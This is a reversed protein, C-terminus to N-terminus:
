PISSTRPKTQFISDMMNKYTSCQLNMFKNTPCNKEFFFEVPCRRTSSSSSTSNTKGERNTELAPTRRRVSRIEDGGARVVAAPADGQDRSVPPQCAERTVAWRRGARGRSRDETKSVAEAGAVTLGDRSEAKISSRSREEKGADISSRYTSYRRSTPRHNEQARIGRGPNEGGGNREQRSTATASV